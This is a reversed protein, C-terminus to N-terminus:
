SQLEKKHGRELRGNQFFMQECWQFVTPDLFHLATPNHLVVFDDGLIAPYNVCDVGSHLVASVFSSEPNLFATTPVPSGKAKVIKERKQYFGKDIKGKKTDWLMVSNGFPLFAQVFYPIDHCHSAYPIGRSNIALLYLDDSAIIRRNLAHQYKGKKTELANTFRLIIKEVPTKEMEWKMGGIKTVERSFYDPVRDEEKDGPGPAIAEVWVKRGKHLFYFEPGAKRVKKLQFGRDRLTVALYMEWFRQLFHNRADQLFHSDTLDYYRTWLSEVFVKAETLDPNNHPNDRVNLYTTDKCDGPIFFSQNASTKAKM